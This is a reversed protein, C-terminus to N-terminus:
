KRRVKSKKSHKHPPSSSSPSSREIEEMCKRLAADSADIIRQMVQENLRSLRELYDLYIRRTDESALALAKKAIEPNAMAYNYYSENVRKALEYSADIKSESSKKLQVL